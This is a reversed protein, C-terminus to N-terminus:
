TQGKKPPCETYIYIFLLFICAKKLLDPGQQSFVPLQKPYSGTAILCKDYKIVKGGEIVAEKNNHNIRKVKWGRAVAVGGYESSSLEECSIYFEEPEFFTSFM